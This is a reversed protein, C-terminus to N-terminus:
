VVVITTWKMGGKFIYITHVENAYGGEVCSFSSFWYDNGENYQLFFGHNCISGLILAMNWM